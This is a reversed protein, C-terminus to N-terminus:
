GTPPRQCSSREIAPQIMSPAVTTTTREAALTYRLFASAVLAGCTAAIVDYATDRWDRVRETHLLVDGLFEYVEWGIAAFAISVAAPLLAGGLFRTSQKPWGIGRLVDYAAFTFTAGTYAHLVKDYWDFTRYGHAVNGLMDALAAMVIMVHTVRSLGGSSQLLSDVGILLLLALTIQFFQYWWYRSFDPTFSWSGVSINPEFLKGYVLFALIAALATASWRSRDTLRLPATRGLWRALTTHRSGTALTGPESPHHTDTVVGTGAVRRVIWHQYLMSAALTLVSGWLYGGLVDTPWHAGVYIRAFGTLVALVVAMGVITWRVRRPRVVRTAVWIISGCFMTAGMAHGSPFGWGSVTQEIRVLDSTPRPSECVAKLLWNLSRLANALVLFGAEIPHRTALLLIGLGFVLLFAARASGFWNGFTVVTRVLPLDLDQVWRAITVDGPLISDGRATWSLAATVILLLFLTARRGM